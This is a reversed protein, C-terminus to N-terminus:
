RRMELIRNVCEDIISQLKIKIKKTIVKENDFDILKESENIIYEERAKNEVLMYIDNHEKRLNSFFDVCYYIDTYIFEDYWDKGLSLINYHSCGAIISDIKYIKEDDLDKKGLDKLSENEDILNDKKMLKEAKYYVQAHEKELWEFYHTGM